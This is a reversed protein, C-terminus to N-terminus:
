VVYVQSLVHYARKYKLASARESYVSAQTCAHMHVSLDIHYSCQETIQDVCAIEQGFGRM